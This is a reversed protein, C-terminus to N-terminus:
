EAIAGGRKRRSQVPRPPRQIIGIPSTLTRQIIEIAPLRVVAHVRGSLARIDNTMESAETLAERRTIGPTRSRTSHLSLQITFIL